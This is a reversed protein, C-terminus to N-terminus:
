VKELCMKLQYVLYLAVGRERKIIKDVMESNFEIHLTRLSLELKEFNQLHHSIEDEQSFEDFDAQLNFKWLLEGFLYGSSFDEEIDTIRVSLM